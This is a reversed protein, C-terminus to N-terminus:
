AIEKWKHYVYVEKSQTVPAKVGRLLFPSLSLARILAKVLPNPSLLTLCPPLALRGRFTM